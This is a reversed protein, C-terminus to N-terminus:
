RSLFLIRLFDIGKWWWVHVPHPTLSQPAPSALNRYVANICIYNSNRRRPIDSGTRLYLAPFLGTTPYYWGTEVRPHLGEDYALYSSYSYLFVFLFCSNYRNCVVSEETVWRVRSPSLCARAISWPALPRGERLRVSAMVVTNKEQTM